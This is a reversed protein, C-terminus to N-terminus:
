MSTFIGSSDKTNVVFDIYKDGVAYGSVPSNATSVTKVSGSKVLYDKPIDIKGLSTGGQKIEYTAVYGTTATELKSLTVDKNALKTNMETETYYRDDHTHSFDTVQSKTHTHSSPARSTDTPHVHDAKAFNSSTGASQTGNMKIDTATSSGTPITPKAETTIKGNADTVVNKSANNSSGVSGDNQLNGHTHSSPTMTSPFDTIESKTHTHTSAAKGDILTKLEKGQKASLAKDTDTSTLNDQIEQKKLYYTSLNIKHTM